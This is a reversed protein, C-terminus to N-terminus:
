PLLSTGLVPVTEMEVGCACDPEPLTGRGEGGNVSRFCTGKGQFHPLSSAGGPLVARENRCSVPFPPVCVRPGDVHDM